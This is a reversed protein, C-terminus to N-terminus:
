RGVGGEMNPPKYNNLVAAVKGFLPDDMGAMPANCHHFSCAQRDCVGLWWHFCEKNSKYKAPLFTQSPKDPAVGFIDKLHTAM